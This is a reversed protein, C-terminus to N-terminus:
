ILYNIPKLLVVLPIYDIKIKVCFELSKETSDGPIEIFLSESISTFNPEVTHVVM